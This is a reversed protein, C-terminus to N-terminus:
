PTATEIKRLVLTTEGGGNNSRDIIEFQGPVDQMGGPDSDSGIFVQDGQRPLVAFEVDRIDLITQQDSIVVEGDGLYEIARSDFIGRGVYAEAKAGGTALPYFVASAIPFFTVPRSWFDFNPLLVFSSYDVGM